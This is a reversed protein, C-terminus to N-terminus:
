KGAQDANLLGAIREAWYIGQKTTDCTAVVEDTKAIVICNRDGIAKLMFGDEFDKKREEKKKINERIHGQQRINAENADQIINTSVLTAAPVHEGDPTEVIERELLEVINKAIRNKNPLDELSLKKSLDKLVLSTIDSTMESLDAIEENATIPPETISKLISTMSRDTVGRQEPPLSRIENALQMYRRATRPSGTFNEELWPTLKGHPLYAKVTNFIEGLERADHMAETIKSNLRAQKDNAVRAATELDGKYIKFADDKAKSSGLTNKRISLLSPLEGNNKEKFGEVFEGVQSLVSKVEPTKALEKM